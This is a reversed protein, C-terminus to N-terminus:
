ECADWARSAAAGVGAGDIDSPLAEFAERASVTTGDLADLASVIQESRAKAVSSAERAEGYAAFASEIRAYDTGDEPAGEEAQLATFRALVSGRVDAPLERVLNQLDTSCGDGVEALRAAAGDGSVDLTMLERYRGSLETGAATALRDATEPDADALREVALLAAMMAGISVEVGIAGDDEAGIATVVFDSRINGLDMVATTLADMAQGRATEAARVDELANDAASRLGTRMEDKAARCREEGSECGLAGLGGVVFVILFVLCIRGSVRM